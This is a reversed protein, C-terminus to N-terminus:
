PLLEVLKENFRVAQYILSVVMVSSAFIIQEVSSFINTRTLIQYTLIATYALFGHIMSRDVIESNLEDFGTSKGKRQQMYNWINAGIVAGILIGISLEVSSLLFKQAILVGALAAVSFLLSQRWSFWEPVSFLKM